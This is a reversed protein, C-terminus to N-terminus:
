PRAPEVEALFEALLANVRDPAELPALHGVGPLEVFRADPIRRYTARGREVGFLADESGHLVLTPCRIAPLEDLVGDRDLAGQVAQYVRRRNARLEGEWRQRDAARLPDALAGPSFCLRMITPLLWPLAGLRAARNLRAFRRKDSPKEPEATTGVLTLSRVLEPRRAAVRMAVFGGLSTGVV